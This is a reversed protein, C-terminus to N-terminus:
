RAELTWSSTEAWGRVMVHMSAPAELEITCTEASGEIYPRCDFDETTPAEGVRVYLDADGDGTLTFTYSGAPTLPTAFHAEEDAAVTGTENMGAFPVPEEGSDMGPHYVNDEEGSVLVVQSRNFDAFITEYTRPADFALLADILANANRASQTAPSPMANTIIDLYKTGNPDDDNVATHADALESDVYAYTDCGNMFVIAYQGTQWEGKAALARINAGLGSHGSYVILDASGSLTEYRNDFDPGPNQVGDVLLVVIQVQKGDPLTAEITVDPIDIGPNNPLDAPTTQVDSAGMNDIIKQIFQNYSRIGADSNSTAGHKFKGFIALVELRNDKWVEHYEPYKGTSNISSVTVTAEMRVVEAEELACGSRHPRYYYWMSGADVDHAGWDVCTHGHREAFGEQGAHSLDSPLILEYTSPVDDRKGWAVPMRARYSIQVGNAVDKTEVDTLEVKDLRGVSNEGNLQGITFLLQSEIQKDTNWSSTTVLVGSFEFDLFIADISADAKGTGAANGGKGATSFDLVEADSCGFVTILALTLAARLTNSRTIMDFM